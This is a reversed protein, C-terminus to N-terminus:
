EGAYLACVYISTTFLASFLIARGFCAFFYVACARYECVGYSGDLNGVRTATVMDVGWFEMRLLACIFFLRVCAAHPSAACSVGDFLM